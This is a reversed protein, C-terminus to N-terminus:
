SLNHQPNDAVDHEGNRHVRTVILAGCLCTTGKKIPKSPNWWHVAVDKAFVRCKTTDALMADIPGPM